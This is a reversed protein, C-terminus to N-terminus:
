DYDYDHEYCACTTIRITNPRMNNNTITGNHNTPLSYFVGVPSKRTFIGYGNLYKVNDNLKYVILYIVLSESSPM